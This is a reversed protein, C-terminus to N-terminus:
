WKCSSKSHSPNSKIHHLTKNVTAKCNDTYDSIWNAQHNYNHTPMDRHPLSRGLPVYPDKWRKLRSQMIPPLWCVWEIDYLLYKCFPPLTKSSLTVPCHSVSNQGYIGHCIMVVPEPCMSEWYPLRKITGLEHRLNLRGTPDCTELTATHSFM